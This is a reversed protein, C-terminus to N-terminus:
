TLPLFLDTAAEHEPVDPFFRIRQCYLPFDRPEEGSQPLWSGYLYMIAAGLSDESGVHRLVACRGGPITKIRIGANNPVVDWDTAVGIDLRFEAAPTIDLDDYFINFVPSAKPVGNEKRWAIFRRVSAGILTPAGRHELVALRIDPTTEICVDDSSWTRRMHIRRAETVPQYVAHWPTWQPQNRFESPSQGFNKKFARAFAEPGEYGADLAIQFISEESRFALKYSARRLRALQVYRHVNIGFLAVFQRHFHYRSFAAVGSLVELSLDEDLHEEIHKLTRRLRDQYHKTAPATVSVETKVTM